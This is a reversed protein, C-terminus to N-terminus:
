QMTEVTNAEVRTDSLMLPNLLLFAPVFYIPDRDGREVATRVELDRYKNLRYILQRASNEAARPKPNSEQIKGAPFVADVLCAINFLRKKIEYCRFLMDLDWALELKAGRGGFWELAALINDNANFVQRAAKRIETRSDSLSLEGAAIYVKEAKDRENAMQRQLSESMTLFRLGWYFQCTWRLRWTFGCRDEKSRFHLDDLAAEVARDVEAECAQSNASWQLYAWQMLKLKFVQRSKFCDVTGMLAM